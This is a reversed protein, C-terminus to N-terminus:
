QAAAPEAVIREVFCEPEDPFLRSRVEAATNAEHEHLFVRLRKTGDHVIFAEFPETFRQDEAPQEPEGDLRLCLNGDDPFHEAVHDSM